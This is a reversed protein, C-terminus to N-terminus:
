SGIGASRVCLANGRGHVQSHVFSIEHKQEGGEEDNGSVRKGLYIFIHEGRKNGPDTTWSWPLRIGGNMGIAVGDSGRTFIATVEDATPLRWDAYGVLRSQDCFTRAEMFTKARQVAPDTVDPKAWM